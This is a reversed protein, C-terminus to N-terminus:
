VSTAADIVECDNVSVTYTSRYQSFVYYNFVYRDNKPSAMVELANDLEESARYTCGTYVGKIKADPRIRIHTNFILTMIKARM